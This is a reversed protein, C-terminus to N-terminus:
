NFIEWAIGFRINRGLMPYYPTIYYKWDFLNEWTFYVIATKQIEASLTFDVIQWSEVDTSIAGVYPNQFDRLSQKGIYNFVFGTKLNLNSNFLSDKFYIGATFKIEPINIFEVESSKEVFYKSLRGELLIKWILYSGEFGLGWLNTASSKKNFISTNLKSNEDKYDLKFEFTNIKEGALYDNDFVSYGLYFNFSENLFISVDAGFGSFDKKNEHGSSIIKESFNSYKYYISPVFISDLFEISILPSIFFSKHDLPSNDLYYRDDLPNSSTFGPNHKLSQYGTQLSLSIPEFLLRQDLLVGFIKDKSTNKSTVASDVENYENLYFKYYFNLNTYANKLPKALVKLGFNHQKFNLSNKVFYVPALAENFLLSNADSTTQLISDINVGGNIGTESKSFYYNGLVALKNSLNYKLKTKVQWISFASNKYSDDVKRNTVDVSVNLDKFLHMSLIGDIFAEGFPGEYYKVRSYPTSYNLEKSIFNVSASTTSFGYLFGRPLPVIEISDIDESQIHNFDIANFLSSTIPVGDNFYSTSSSGEAYLLIDHPQGVFGYSREFSFPFVKILDGTYRYDNRLIETKTIFSSQYSFPQHYLPAQVEETQIDLSDMTSAISDAAFVTSSDKTYNVKDSYVSDMENGLSDAMFPASSDRASNADDIFVSDKIQALLIVPIFWYLFLTIKFFM